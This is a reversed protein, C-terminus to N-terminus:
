RPSSQSNIERVRKRNSGKSAEGVMHERQNGIAQGGGAERRPSGLSVQKSGAALEM